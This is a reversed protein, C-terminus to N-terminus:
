NAFFLPYKNSEAKSAFESVIKCRKQKTFYKARLARNGCYEQKNPIILTFPTVRQATNALSFFESTKKKPFGFQVSHM